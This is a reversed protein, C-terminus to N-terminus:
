ETYGGKLFKMVNKVEGRIEVMSTITGTDDASCCFLVVPYYDTGVMMMKGEICLTLMSYDMFAWEGDIDKGYGVYINGQGGAPIDIEKDRSFEQFYGGSVGFAAFGSDLKYAEIFSELSDGVKIGFPAVGNEYKQVDAAGFSAIELTGDGYYTAAYESELTASGEAHPLTFLQSDEFRSDSVIGLDDYSFYPKTTDEPKKEPEKACSALSFALILALALSISRKMDSCWIFPCATRM